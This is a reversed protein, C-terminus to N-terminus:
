KQKIRKLGSRREVEDVMKKSILCQGKRPKAKRNYERFYIDFVVQINIGRSFQGETRPM